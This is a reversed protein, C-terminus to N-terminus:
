PRKVLVPDHMLPRLRLRALNKKRQREAGRRNLGRKKFVACLVNIVASARIRLSFLSFDTDKEHLNRKEGLDLIRGMGEIVRGDCM